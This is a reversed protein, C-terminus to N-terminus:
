PVLFARTWAPRRTLSDDKGLAETWEQDNMRRMDAGTLTVEYFSSVPGVFYSICGRWPLAMVMLQVPGTAAHLVQAPGLDDDPKSHIDAITYESKISGPSIDYGYHLDRFWGEYWRSPACGGMASKDRLAHRVWNVQDDTLEQGQATREAAARLHDCADALRAFYEGIEQRKPRFIRYGERAYAGVAAFFDPYPEVYARPFDCMYSATYSQKAYLLTNHRLQAWSALQTNRMKMRWAETRFAPAAKGNAEAANLQRLFGLWGTYLSSRWAAPSLGDYLRRQAALRGLLAPQPNELDSPAGNDGLMFAAELSSPLLRFPVKPHVTESFTFADLVFRQPFFSCILPLTDKDAPMRYRMQSAIAQEGAGAREMAQDFRAEDFNAVLDRIEGGGLAAALREMGDMGMGDAPGVLFNIWGELEKWAPLSGSGAVCDYLVLAAKKMRASGGEPRHKAPSLNLALDARSLWMMARFYDVLVWTKAYHGRPKFQTFDVAAERGYLPFSRSAEADIAAVIKRVGPDKSHPAPLPGDAPGAGYAARPRGPSLLYLATRLMLRVDEVHDADRWNEEARKLSASLIGRLTAAFMGSELDMLIADYSLYVTHLLADTTFILPLDAHFIDSLALFYNPYRAAASVAMGDRRVRELFAHAQFGPGGRKALKAELSDAYDIPGHYDPGPRYAIPYWKKLEGAAASPRGAVENRYRDFAPDGLLPQLPLEPVKPWKAAISDPNPRPPRTAVDLSEAALEAAQAQVIKRMVQAFVSDPEELGTDRMPRAQAPAGTAGSAEPSHAAFVPGALVFFIRCSPVIRM